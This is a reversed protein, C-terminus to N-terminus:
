DKPFNFFPFVPLFGNEVMNLLGIQVGTIKKTINLFGIQVASDDSLNLGGIDLKTHGDAINLFGINAGNELTKILNVFAANVGTDKGSHLNILAGAFGSVDGTVKSLGFVASFGSLNQAESLSVLGLDFGRVSHNEGYLLALRMGNVDPDDPARLGPASFQFPVEAFAAQSFVLFSFVLALRKM